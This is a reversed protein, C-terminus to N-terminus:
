HTALSARLELAATHLRVMALTDLQCYALLRQRQAPIEDAPIMGVRMLAFLGLADDGNNVPLDAYSLDPVLVPLVKKISTRGAFGPHWYGEVFVKELDFLRAVVAECRPGLDPFLAALGNLRTKEYSSYVIISGSDGLDDLLHEVLERRWDGEHTALFETHTPEADAWAKTHLSYQFPVADFPPAAAFWPIPPMVAEFDLYRAPWVVDDLRGLGKLDHQPKGTCTVDAVRKQPPTLAVNAPLRSIREYKRLEEFKKASLRPLLFLPDPVDRGVCESAFYPCDKCAHILTADPRADGTVAPVVSRATAAFATALARVPATVDVVSFLEHQGDLVFERNIMVLFVRSIRTGAGAAVCYTYAADALHDDKIANAHEPSKSAKIEFLELGDVTRRVADARAVMGRSSFTAQFMRENDPNALAAMTAAIALEQPARPLSLGSGLWELARREFERGFWFRWTLGHGPTEGDAHQEYWGQAQCTLSSLFARKAVLATM